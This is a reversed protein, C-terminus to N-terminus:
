YSYEAAVIPSRGSRPRRRGSSPRQPKTGDHARQLGATSASARTPSGLSPLGTSLMNFSSSSSSPMPPNASSSAAAERPQQAGLSGSHLSSSSGSSLPDHAVSRDSSSSSRSSPLAYSSAGSGSSFSSSSARSASCRLTTSAISAADDPTSPQGPPAAAALAARVAARTWSVECRGQEDDDDSSHDLGELVADLARAQRVKEAFSLKLSMIGSSASWLASDDDQMPGLAGSLNKSLASLAGDRASPSASPSSKPRRGARMKSSVQVSHGLLVGTCKEYRPKVSRIQLMRLKPHLISRSRRRRSRVTTKLASHLSRSKVNVTFHVCQSIPGVGSRMVM